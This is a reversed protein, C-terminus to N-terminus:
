NKKEAKGDYRRSWEALIRERNAAAWEFDNDIMKAEVDAPFNPVPKAKGPVALIAFGKNYEALAADSIAFDMLKQAAAEYDSGKIIAAAEADWGLGEAPTVVEIPAGDTKEKSARFDFSVGITVEGRAADKCPKSGSHTYAAINQHLADMFAWGNEEGWMQLWASVDLYGTGSSAPHPMSVHGKYEPKTLDAWSAPMPLNNKKLEVTNVCLAAAWANGGVWTPPNSRDKFRAEVRELGQPAYAQLMGESKLLLLSSAALGWVADARPNNKEALLKATVVGTSDRVWKISVDPHAKEFAAKYRPLDEAEYATYVTIETAAHAGLAAFGLLVSTALKPFAFATM